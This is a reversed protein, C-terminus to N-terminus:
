GYFEPNPGVNESTLHLLDNRSPSLGEGARRDWYAWFRGSPTKSPYNIGLPKSGDDLNLGRITHALLTTLDRDEGTLSGSM